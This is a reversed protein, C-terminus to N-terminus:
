EPILDLRRLEEVLIPSLGVARVDLGRIKDKAQEVTLESDPFLQELATAVIRSLGLEIFSRGSTTSVGLELALSFDFAEARRVSLGVKELVYHLVDTYAKGLQVMEFRLVKEFFEFAQRILDNVNANPKRKRRYTIWKSLLVPYPTGLMWPIAYSAILGGYPGPKMGFLDQLARSIIGPYLAFARPHRPHVPILEDLEGRKIKESMRDALRRLGYPDVTWNAEILDSPLDLFGIAESTELELRERQSLSLTSLRSAVEGIRKTSARAILLGAASRIEARRPNRFSSEPMIGRVANLVADFDNTMVENFSPAIKFKKRENMSQDKWNDYDVLFVNGALEQGLRGGTWCFELPPCGGSAYRERSYAYQYIREQRSPQSRPVANDHM